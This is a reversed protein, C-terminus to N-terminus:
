YVFCMCSVSTGAGDSALSFPHSPQPSPHAASGSISETSYAQCIITLHIFFVIYLIPRTVILYKPFYSLLNLFDLPSQAPFGLCAVLPSKTGPKRAAKDRIRERRSDPSPYLASEKRTVSATQRKTSSCSIRPVSSSIM